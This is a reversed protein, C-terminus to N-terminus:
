YNFLDVPHFDIVDNIIVFNKLANIQFNTADLAQTPNAFSLSYLKLYTTTDFILMAILFEGPTHTTLICCKEMKNVKISEEFFIETVLQSPPLAAPGLEAATDALHSLTYFNNSLNLKSNERESEDLHARM